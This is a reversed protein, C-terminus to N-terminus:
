FMGMPKLTFSHILSYIKMYIIVNLNKNKDLREFIFLQREFTILYQLSKQDLKFKISLM